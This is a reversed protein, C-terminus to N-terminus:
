FVWFDFFERRLEEEELFICANKEKEKKKQVGSMSYFFNL